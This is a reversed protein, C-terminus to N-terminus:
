RNGRIPWRGRTTGATVAAPEVSRHSGGRKNSRRAKLQAMDARAREAKEGESWAAFRVDQDDGADPVPATDCTPAWFEGPDLQGRVVRRLDRLRSGLLAVVAGTLVPLRAPEDDNATRKDRVLNTLVTAAEAVHELQELELALSCARTTSKNNTIM